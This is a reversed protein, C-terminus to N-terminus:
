VSTFFGLSAAAVAESRLRVYLKGRQWPNQLQLPKFDDRFCKEQGGIIAVLCLEKAKRGSITHWFSRDKKGQCKKDLQQVVMEVIESARTLSTIHLQCAINFPSLM